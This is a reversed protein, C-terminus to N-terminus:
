RISWNAASSSRTQPPPPTEPELPPPQEPEVLVVPPRTGCATLLYAIAFVLISRFLTM